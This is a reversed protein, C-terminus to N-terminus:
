GEAALVVAEPWPTQCIKIFLSFMFPSLIYGQRLGIKTEFMSKVCSECWLGASTGQYNNKLINLMKTSMGM